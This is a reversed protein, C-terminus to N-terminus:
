RPTIFALATELGDRRRATVIRRGPQVADRPAGLAGPLRGALADVDAVVAVLGWLHPPTGNEAVEVIAPGLRVFAMPAPLQPPAGSRRLDGGAGVLAAVTRDRSDTFVVVHDLAVAGNPHEPAPDQPAAARWSTALGDLSEPGQEGDLVWGRLGGGGGDIRVRVAGVQCTGDSAVAFGLAAWAAPDDGCVLELLSTSVGGTQGIPM